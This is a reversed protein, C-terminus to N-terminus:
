IISLFPPPICTLVYRTDTLLIIKSLCPSANNTFIPTSCVLGCGFLKEESLRTGQSKLHIYSLSTHPSSTSAYQMTCLSMRTIHGAKRSHAPDLM